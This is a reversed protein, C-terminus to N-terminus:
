TPLLRFLGDIYLQSIYAILFTRVGQSLWRMCVNALIISVETVIATTTPSVEFTQPPIPTFM